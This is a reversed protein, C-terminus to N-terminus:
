IEDNICKYLYINKFYDVHSPLYTQVVTKFLDNELPLVALACAYFRNYVNPQQSKIKM